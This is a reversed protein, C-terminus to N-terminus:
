FSCISHIVRGITRIKDLSAIERNYEPNDSYIEIGNITTKLRKIICGYEICAVYIKGDKIETDSLDLIVIDGDKLTPLMSDGSVTIARKNHNSHIISKPLKVSDITKEDYNIYGAGASCSVSIIPIDIWNDVESIIIKETFFEELIKINEETIGVKGKEVQGIYSSSTGIIDGLRQQSLGKKLRLEKIKKGTDIMKNGINLFFTM